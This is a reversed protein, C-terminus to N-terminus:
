LWSSTEPREHKGRQRQDSLDAGMLQFHRFGEKLHTAKEHDKKRGAGDGLHHHPELQGRDQTLQHGTDQDPHRPQMQDHRGVRLRLDAIGKQRQQAGQSLDAGLLHRLDVVFGERAQLRNRLDTQEGQEEERAQFAFQIFQHGNANLGGGHRHRSHQQGKGEASRAEVVEEM